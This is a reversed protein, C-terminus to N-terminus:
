REQPRSPKPRMGPTVELDIKEDRRQVNFRSATGPKLAAVQGLLEAVNTVPKGAVATIVDGPRLGGQAAPGNQLV